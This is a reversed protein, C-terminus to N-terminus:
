SYIKMGLYNRWSLDAPEISRLRCTHLHRKQKLGISFNLLKLFPLQKYVIDYEYCNLHM